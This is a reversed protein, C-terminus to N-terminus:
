ASRLRQCLELLLGGGNIRISEALSWRAPTWDGQNKLLVRAVAAPDEISTSTTPATAGDDPLHDDGLM